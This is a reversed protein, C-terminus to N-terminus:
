FRIAFDASVGTRPKDGLLVGQEETFLALNLEMIALDLGAGFSLYGKNLGGRLAIFGGLLDVEAGAHLMHMFSKGDAYVALPDQLDAVLLIDILGAVVAPLPRLSLGLALEPLVSYSITEGLPLNGRGLSDLTDGLTSAALAQDTGIDRISFGLTALRGFNVQIGMDAAFGFGVDVAMSMPDADKGGILGLMESAEIPGTLRLFPRLNGGITMDLGFLRLPVGIGVLVALQGDMSGAAGVATKGRVYSDFGGVLGLGLGGGTIGTGFSLGAGLGNSSALSGLGGLSLDGSSFTDSLLAINDSNPAFYLWPNAVALTFERKGAYAAPNGFFGQYGQSTAKFVGGMAMTRPDKPTIADLRHQSFVSGASLTLLILITAARKM